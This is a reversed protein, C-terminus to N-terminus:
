TKIIQRTKFVRLPHFDARRPTFRGIINEKRFHVPNAQPKQRTMAPTM